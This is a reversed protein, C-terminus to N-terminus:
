FALNVGTAVGFSQNFGGGVPFQMEGTLRMGPMVQFDAGVRTPLSLYSQNTSTADVSQFSIGLGLYPSISGSTGVMFSRSAVATPMLTLVHYNDSTEVGLAGGASIDLPFGEGSHALGARIDAGLRLTTRDTGEWTVRALGGQFGFDVSPYFSLRLQALGGLVRDSANLYFGAQHAGTPMIEASVLQGFVQARAPSAAALVAALTAAAVVIRNM